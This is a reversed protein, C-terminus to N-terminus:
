QFLKSLNRLRKDTFDHVTMTAHGLKRKPYTTALAIVTMGARQGSEIGVLSDEFVICEKSHVGLRKAAKLYIAPHPKAYRVHAATVIAEFYRNEIKPHNLVFRINEPPASSAVGLRVGHQQLFRLYANLGKVPRFSRAHIVRYLTEKERTYRLIQQASLMRGFLIKLIKPNTHGVIRHWDSKKFPRDHQACFIEWAQRHAKANDVLVGDMDFIAARLPVM